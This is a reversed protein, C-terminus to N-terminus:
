THRPWATTPTPHYHHCPHHDHVYLRVRFDSEHQARLKKLDETFPPLYIWQRRKGNHSISQKNIFHPFWVPDVYPKQSKHFLKRKKTPHWHKSALEATFPLSPLSPHPLSFHRPHSLIWPTSPKTPHTAGEDNVCNKPLQSQVEDTKCNQYFVHGSVPHVLAKWEDDYKSHQLVKVTSSSDESYIM